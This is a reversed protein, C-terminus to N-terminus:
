KSFNPTRSMNQKRLQNGSSKMGVFAEGTNMKRKKIQVYKRLRGQTYQENKSSTRKAEEHLQASWQKKSKEDLQNSALDDDVVELTM